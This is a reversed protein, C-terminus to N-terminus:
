KKKPTDNQIEKIKNIKDDKNMLRKDETPMEESKQSINTSQEKTKRELAMKRKKDELNLEQIQLNSANFWVNIKTGDKKTRQIGEISVRSKKLDVSGIKGTRKKFQGKMIKVKDEKRLPFSKKTYKEKLAKSLNASMFKRLIHLPANARYKRQKRPQRSAIWHKSFEQKM